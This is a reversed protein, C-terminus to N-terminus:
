RYCIRCPTKKSQLAEEESMAIGYKGSHTQTKHYREASPSSFVTQNTAIDDNVHIDIKQVRDGYTVTLTCVGPKIATYVTDHVDLINCNASIEFQTIYDQGNTVALGGSQGVSLEKRTVAVHFEANEIDQPLNIFIHSLLLLFITAGSFGLIWKLRKSLESRLLLILGIPFFLCLTASLFIPEDKFKM